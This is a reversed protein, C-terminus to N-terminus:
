VHPTVGLINDISDLIPTPGRVLSRVHRLNRSIGRISPNIYESKYSRNSQIIEIDCINSTITLKYIKNQEFLKKALLDAILQIDHVKKKESISIFPKGNAAATFLIPLLEKYIIQMKENRNNKALSALDIDPPIDSKIIAGRETKYKNYADEYEKNKRLKQLILLNTPRLYWGLVTTQRCIPCSFIPIDFVSRCKDKEARDNKIMCPECLTHGCQPYIRPCLMTDKCIPCHM